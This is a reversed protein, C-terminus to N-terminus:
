NLYPLEIEVVLGDQLNRAAISGHHANVAREAIALGLGIGGTKRDRATQLRYFPKFLKQLEDEPVGPGFDRVSVIANKGNKKLSVEVASADRTYRVANRLVNEIASRLLSENGFVRVEDKQLIKVKKKHAQAEFDADAAVQESLKTLNVEHKEFSGSGTELKSLTLLRSLMENLRNSETEIREILPKTSDNAKARALELAVNLRALPSRLEHSIDQTLRKEATVLAEIREAMDDFDKALASIEDHRKGVKGGVRTQLDGEAFKQTALRLKSIPSTLYLALAYCVLGATIVVALIQWLLRTTFFPPAQFRKLELIYVQNTGDKLTVRKAAYTKDPLRLFEPEDTQLTRNFLESVENVELNGAIRHKDERFLGVSNVRLRSKVRDLYVELGKQGENEYIQIATQSNTTVSEGVFTQWQRVLPESQTSWNVLTVAGVILAMALWFWLFIKLFISM